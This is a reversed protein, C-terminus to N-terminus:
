VSSVQGLAKELVHNRQNTNSNISPILLESLERILCLDTM